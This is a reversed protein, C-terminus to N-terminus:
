VGPDGDDNNAFRLFAPCQNVREPLRGYFAGLMLPRIVLVRGRQNRRSRTAAAPVTSRTAQAGLGPVVLEDGLAPPFSVTAEQCSCSLKSAQLM